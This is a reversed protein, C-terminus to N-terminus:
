GASTQLTWTAADWYASYDKGTLWLGPSQFLAFTPTAGREEGPATALLAPTVEFGARRLLGGALAALDLDSGYATDFTRAAARTRPSLLRWDYAVRRESRKVFDCVRRAKESAYDTGELVTKLSDELAIGLDGADDFAKAVVAGLAPWDAFTSWQVHPLDAAPRDGPPLPLPDANRVRFSFVAPGAPDPAVVGTSASTRLGAKSPAEVILWSNLAPVVHRFTWEGEIGPRYPAKDEITYACELICPLEVGDHLLMTERIGAYDPTERLAFPTTEVVATKRAEIWRGGRWVRLTQVTFAQRDSDWPIRLDAFNRQAIDTGIWVVRHHQERLRGDDLWTYHAQELLLIGDQQAFDWTKQADAMMAGIDLANDYTMPEAAAFRAGFAFAASLIAVALLPRTRARPM